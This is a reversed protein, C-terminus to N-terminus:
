KMESLEKQEKKARESIDRHPGQLCSLVEEPKMTRCIAERDAGSKCASLFFVLVLTLCLYLNSKSM